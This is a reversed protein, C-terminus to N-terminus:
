GYYVDEILPINSKYECSEKLPCNSCRKLSPYAVFDKEIDMANIQKYVSEIHTEHINYSDEDINIRILKVNNVEKSSFVMFYFDFEDYNLNYNEKVLMKYQIAQVLLKEKYHLSEVDWGTDAWKDDILGSYKLDIICPRGNLEGWIDLIGNKYKSQLKLGVQNIKLNYEKKIKKFLEASQMARKFPASITERKTGAYSLRPEPVVGNRPLSGTALYEFYNGLDMAESTPFEVNDFHKAKFQIGCINKGKYENYDKLFSQSIKKDM